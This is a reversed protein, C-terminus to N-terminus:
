GHETQRFRQLFIHTGTHYLIGLRAFGPQLHYIGQRARQLERYRAQAVPLYGYGASTCLNKLELKRERERNRRIQLGGGYPYSNRIQLGSFPGAPSVCGRKLRIEFGCLFLDLRKQRRIEFGCSRRRTQTEGKRRRNQTEGKGRGEWFTTMLTM